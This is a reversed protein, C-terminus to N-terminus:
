TKEYYALANKGPLGKWGLRIKAPLELLRGYLKAGELEESPYAGSKGAFM